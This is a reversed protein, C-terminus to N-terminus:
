QCVIVGNSLDVRGFDVDDGGARITAVRQRGAADRFINCTGSASGVVLARNAILPNGLGAFNARISIRQNNAPINRQVAVDQADNSLQVRVARAQRADIEATPADIDIPAAAAFAAFLSAIIITARM